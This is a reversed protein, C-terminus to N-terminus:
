KTEKIVGNQKTCISKTEKIVGNHKTLVSKTKKIVGSHKTILEGGVDGTIDVYVDLSACVENEMCDIRPSHKPISCTIEGSAASLTWSYYLYYMDDCDKVANMTSFYEQKHAMAGAPIDHYAYYRKHFRHGFRHNSFTVNKLDPNAKIALQQIWDYITGTRPLGLDTLYWNYSAYYWQEPLATYKFTRTVKTM